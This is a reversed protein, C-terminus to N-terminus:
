VAAFRTIENVWFGVLKRPTQLDAEYVVAPESWEAFVSALYGHHYQRGWGQRQRHHHVVNEEESIKNNPRQIDKIVQAM